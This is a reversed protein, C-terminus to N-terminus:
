PAKNTYNTFVLPWSTDTTVFYVNKGFLTQHNKIIFNCDEFHDSKKTDDKRIESEELYSNKM